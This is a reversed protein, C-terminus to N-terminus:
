WLAFLFLIRCPGVHSWFSSEVTRHTTVLLFHLAHFQGSRAHPRERFHLNTEGACAVPAGYDARSCLVCVQGGGGRRTGRDAMNGAFM